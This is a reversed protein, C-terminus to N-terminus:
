AGGMEDRLWIRAAAWERKVTRDSLNLFHAIEEVSLGGFFRLEVVRGFYCHEVAKAVFAGDENLLVDGSSRSFANRKDRPIRCLHEKGLIDSVRGDVIFVRVSGCRCQRFGHTNM